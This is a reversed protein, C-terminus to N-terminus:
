VIDLAVDRGATISNQRFVVSSLAHIYMIVIKQSIQYVLNLMYYMYKKVDIADEALLGASARALTSYAPECLMYTNGLLGFVLRQGPQAQCCLPLFCQM